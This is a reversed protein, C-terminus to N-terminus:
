PLELGCLEQWLKEEKPIGGKTGYKGSGDEEDMPALSSFDKKIVDMLGNYVIRNGAENLHLGDCLYNARNETDGQLLEWTDVVSCLEHRSAVAKATLGYQRTVHNDRDSTEIARFQKWGTEHVPPPTLVIIPITKKHKQRITQIMRELNAEYAPLPVHQPEPQLAADNAGFFLTCFLIPQQKSENEVFLTDLVNLAHHTNYGSFGRNLVDARRTYASSLLSAWGFASDVNGFGYETISDGFLM